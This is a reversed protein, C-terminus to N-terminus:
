GPLPLDTDASDNLAVVSMEGNKIDLVTHSCHAPSFCIVRADSRAAAVAVNIAVYHSVVVTEEAIEHLAELVGQRWTLLERKMDSWNASLTEQLWARREDPSGPPGPIEAVRPELRPTVQWRRALASATEQTRKLPSMLMPLPGLSSITAAMSEAQEFGLESLGPDPEEAWQAATDGHRILHLRVTSSM